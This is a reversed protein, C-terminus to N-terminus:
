ILKWGNGGFEDMAGSKGFNMGKSTPSPIFELGEMGSWQITWGKWTWWWHGVEWHEM